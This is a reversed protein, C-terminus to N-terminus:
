ARKTIKAQRFVGVQRAWQEARERNPFIREVQQLFGPFTVVYVPKVPLPTYLGARALAGTPDVMANIDAPNTLKKTM